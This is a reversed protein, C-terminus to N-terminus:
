DHSNSSKRCAADAEITKRLIHNRVFGSGSEGLVDFTKVGDCGCSMRVTLEAHKDSTEHRPCTGFNAM